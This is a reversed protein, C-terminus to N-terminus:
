EPLKDFQELITILEKSDVYIDWRKSTIEVGDKTNIYEIVVFLKDLSPTIIYTIVSSSGDKINNMPIMGVVEEETKMFTFHKLNENSSLLEYIDNVYYM